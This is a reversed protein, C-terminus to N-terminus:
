STLAGRRASGDNSSGMATARDLMDPSLTRQLLIHGERQRPLASRSGTAQCGCPTPLAPRHWLAQQTAPTRPVPRNFSISTHAPKLGDSQACVSPWLRGSAGIHPRCCARKLWTVPRLNCRFVGGLPFRTSTRRQCEWPRVSFNRCLYFQLHHAASRSRFHSM